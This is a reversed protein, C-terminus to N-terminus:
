VLCITVLENGTWKYVGIILVAIVGSVGTSVFAYWWALKMSMNRLENVFTSMTSLCGCFGTMIGQVLVCNLNNVNGNSIICLFLISSALM